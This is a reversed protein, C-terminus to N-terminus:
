NEIKRERISVIKPGAGLDRIRMINETRGRAKESGRQLDYRIRFVILFDGNDNRTLKPEELLKFNRQPWRRYYSAQDKIIAAKSIKQDSFYKVEDAFFSIEREPTPAQAARLYDDLFERAEKWKIRPPASPPSPVADEDPEPQQQTTALQGELEQLFQRDDEAFQRARERAPPEVAEPSPQPPASPALKREEAMIAELTAANLEPTVEIGHRIQFRRVADRTAADYEGTIEGSYFQQKKLSNQIVATPSDLPQPKSEGPAVMALGAFAACVILLPWRAQLVRLLRISTEDFQM